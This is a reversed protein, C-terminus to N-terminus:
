GYVQDGPARSSSVQATPEHGRGPTQRSPDFGRLQPPDMFSKTLRPREGAAYTKGDLPWQYAELEETGKGLVEGTTAYHDLVRQLGYKQVPCVRMCIACGDAQSVVPLCRETSIKWKQVGRHMAARLRIAGSPCNRACVGCQECLGTIGYDVPSGFTLPADTNITMMRLRSGAVPTLLQGNLGLQGLGAQVAFHINIGQGGSPNGPVAVKYGHAVLAEAVRCAREHVEGYAIFESKEFHFNPIQQTAEWPQELILVVVRDGVVKQRDQEFWYREDYPAVGIASLGAKRAAERVLRDAASPDNLRQAPRRMARAVRQHGRRIGGFMRPATPLLAKWQNSFGWIAADEFVHEFDHIPSAAFAADEAASDREIGATRLLDPPVRVSVQPWTQLPPRIARPLPWPPRPLRGLKLLTHPRCLRTGLPQLVLLVWGPRASKRSVNRKALRFM